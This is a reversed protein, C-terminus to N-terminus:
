GRKTFRGRNDRKPECKEEPEPRNTADRFADWRGLMYGLGLGVLLALISFIHEM